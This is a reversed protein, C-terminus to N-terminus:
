DCCTSSLMSRRIAYRRLRDGDSTGVQRPTLAIVREAVAPATKSRLEAIARQPGQRGRAVDERVRKEDLGEVYGQAVAGADALDGDDEDLAPM